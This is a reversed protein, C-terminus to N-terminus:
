TNHTPVMARGALYMHDSNDVQICRVPVSGVTRVDTIYRRSARDSRRGSVREAKRPLRFPNNDTTFGVNFATSTAETRGSVRRHGVTPQYGLSRALEAVNEALIARTSTYTVRGSRASATGDSDLLGALLARRQAVGARLYAAPIHKNGLVDLVRLRTALSDLNAWHG